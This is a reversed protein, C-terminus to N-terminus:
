GPYQQRAVEMAKAMIAEYAPRLFPQPKNGPHGIIDPEGFLGPIWMRGQEEWYFHFYPNGIMWHPRTGEEQFMAHRALAEWVGATRSVMRPFISDKIPISRYDHKTGSPALRRSLKAGEEVLKKTTAEGAQECDRIFEGLSNRAIVRNSVAVNGM